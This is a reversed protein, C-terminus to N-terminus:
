RQGDVLIYDADLTKSATTNTMVAICPTLAVDATVAAGVSGVLAGNIYFDAGGATNVFLELTQETDAVPAVGSHLLATDTGDAVGQLAWEDTTAATDYVFGVADTANSTVTATAISFPMELTGTALADTFGVFYKADAVSSVPTIAAKLRLGGKDAQWNLGHTLSSVSEAATVTDGSVLRVVGGVQANVAPDLAQADSGSAGSFHGDLTDGLFHDELRVFVAPDVYAGRDADVVLAKRSSNSDVFGASGDTEQEFNITM